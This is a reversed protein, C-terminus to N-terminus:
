WDLKIRERNFTLKSQNNLLNFSFDELRVVMRDSKTLFVQAGRIDRGLTSFTLEQSQQAKDQCHELYEVQM